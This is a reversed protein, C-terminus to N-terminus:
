GSASREEREPEPAHTAHPFLVLLVDGAALPRAPDPPCLLRRDRTQIGLVQGGYTRRYDIERLSRGILEASVPVRDVSGTDPTSMAGVLHVLESQEEIAALGAHERLLSERMHGLSGKVTEYVHARSIMGLYRRERADAVVPVADLGLEQFLTVAEYLSDGPELAPGPRAALDAAILIGPVEPEQLVHSLEAMSILGVLREDSLVPVTPQVGPVLSRLIAALPTAPHVRYPWHADMVEAVRHRELLSVVADGAHAPSEASTPTQASVLGFRHGIVYAIMTALMLPVILGFGGTMEMVMAIAAIPTRMSAALVGAMGVPVLARRLSDDVLGPALATLLAGLAGGAIGGIAVSPGLLGGPAGSGVTTGTAVCKAVVVLGLVGAWVLWQDPRTITLLSGNFIGQVFRYEGDMVQPVLCAIAGTLLGGLGPKLWGPLPLAAFARESRRICVSFVIATAGCVLGLLAYVPMEGASAFALSETHSLVRTGTGWFAHFTSYGVASAIFASVLASGEFEPQRYLVSAAFLAGGLPCGFIAGVGAACGAVLLARLERPTLGCLRGVASGIAAGLAAAPGEPGASGGSSIVGVATAAKVAPSRLRLTGNGHHFAHVMQDTGQGKERGALVRALLGSLLGGAAPLLLIQWRFRFVHASGPAAFRGILLDAGSRLGTALALAALGSLWGVLVALGLTRSWRALPHQTRVLYRARARLRAALSDDALGRDVM